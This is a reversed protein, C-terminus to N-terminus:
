QEMREDTIYSMLANFKNEVKDAYILKQLFFLTKGIQKGKIGLELLDDGGIDVEKISRPYNGSLIDHAAKMMYPPIIRSKLSVPSLKYMYSAVLRNNVVNDKEGKKHAIELAEIEKGTQSDGKLRDKYFSSSLPSNQLLLFVFEGITKTDKFNKTEGHFEYGFIQKFLGTKLLLKAGVEPKGKNVIKKFEELIREGTIERIKSANRKILAFTEPEITFEFRAAFQVARLMRLPDESFATPSVARIKKLKLDTMGGFPDVIKGKSDMALANITFDRRKLDTEIPLNPDTTIDFGRHGKDTRVDTRTIALDIAEKAGPLTLKIVGFSRGVIDVKGFPQLLQAMQKYSIGTILLDVDKSEKNLFKDRVAGGVFYVGGYKNLEKFFPTDAVQSMISGRKLSTKIESGDRKVPVLKGDVTRAVVIGSDDAYMGFRVHTLGLRDAKNKAESEENIQKLIDSLRGM